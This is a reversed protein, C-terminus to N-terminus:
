LLGAREQVLRVVDSEKFIYGSTKGVGVKEGLLKEQQAWRRVTKVDVQLMGAAQRTNVWQDAM